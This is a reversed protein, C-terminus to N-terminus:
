DGFVAGDAGYDHYGAVGAGRAYTRRWKEGWVDWWGSEDESSILCFLVGVEVAADVGEEEVLGFGVEVLGGPLFVDVAAQFPPNHAGYFETDELLTRGYDTHLTPAAPHSM